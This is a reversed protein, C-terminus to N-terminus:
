HYPSWRSRCEKGVRREESRRPGVVARFTAVIPQARVLSIGISTLVANVTFFVAVLLFFGVLNVAPAHGSARQFLDYVHIYLQGGLGLALTVQAINFLVKLASLRASVATFGIVVACAILSVIPPFLIAIAFLPIFAISSSGERGTAFYISITQLLVGTAIFTAIGAWDAGALNSLTDASVTALAFVVAAAVVALVYALASKSM